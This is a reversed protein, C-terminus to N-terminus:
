WIWCICCWGVITSDRIWGFRNFRVSMPTDVVAIFMRGVFLNANSGGFWCRKRRCLIKNIHGFNSVAATIQHNPDNGDTHVLGICHGICPIYVFMSLDFKAFVCVCHSFPLNETNKYKITRTSQNALSCNIRNIRNIRHVICDYM